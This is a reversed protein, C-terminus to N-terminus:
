ISYPVTSYQVTSYQVISYQVDMVINVSLDDCVSSDLIAYYCEHVCSYRRVCSYMLGCMMEYM